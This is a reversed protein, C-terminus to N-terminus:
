GGIFLVIKSSLFRFTLLPKCLNTVVGGKQM